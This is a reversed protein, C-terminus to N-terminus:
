VVKQQQILLFFLCIAETKVQNKHLLCRFFILKCFVLKCWCTLQQQQEFTPPHSAKLQLSSPTSWKNVYIHVSVVLCYHFLPENKMNPGKKTPFCNLKKKMQWDSFCFTKYPLCILSTGQFISISSHTQSPQLVFLSPQMSTLATINCYKWM